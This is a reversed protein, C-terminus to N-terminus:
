ITLKSDQNVTLYVTGLLSVSLSVLRSDWDESDGRRVVKGRIGHATTTTTTDSGKKKLTSVFTGGFVM